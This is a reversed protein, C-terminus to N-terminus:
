LARGIAAGYGALVRYSRQVARADDELPPPAKLEDARAAMETLVDRLEELMEELPAEGGITVWAGDLRAQLRLRGAPTVLVRVYERDCLVYM